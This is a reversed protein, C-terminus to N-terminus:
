NVSGKPAGILIQLPALEPFQWSGSSTIVFLGILGKLTGVGGGLSSLSSFGFSPDSVTRHYWPGSVPAGMGIQLPALAPLHV